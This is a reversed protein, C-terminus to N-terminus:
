PLQAVLALSRLPQAGLHPPQLRLRVGQTALQVGGPQRAHRHLLLRRRRRRLHLGRLLLQLRLPLALPLQLHTAAEHGCGGYRGCKAPVGGCV